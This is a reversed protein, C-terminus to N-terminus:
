KKEPKAWLAKITGTLGPGSINLRLLGATTVITLGLLGARAVGRTARPVYDSIIYNMGVHAHFPFMFGLALDVPM